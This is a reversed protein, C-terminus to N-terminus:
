PSLFQHLTQYEEASIRKVSFESRDRGIKLSADAITRPISWGAAVPERAPDSTLYAVFYEEEREPIPHLSINM